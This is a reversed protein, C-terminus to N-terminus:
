DGLEDGEKEEYMQEQPRYYELCCRESCFSKGDAIEDGCTLCYNAQGENPNSTM